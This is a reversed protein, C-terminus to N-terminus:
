KRMNALAARKWLDWARLHIQDLVKNAKDAEEPDLFNIAGAVHVWALLSPDTARYETGGPLTGSVQEHIAKM